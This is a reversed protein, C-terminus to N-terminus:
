AAGKKIAGVVWHSATNDYEYIINYTGAASMDPAKSNFYYTTNLNITRATSMSLQILIQHFITTDSISPLSFTVTGTATIKNVTNDSLTITGSASLSNVYGEEVFYLTDDSTTTIGAFTSGNMIRVNGLTSTTTM